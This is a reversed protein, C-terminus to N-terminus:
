ETPKDPETAEEVPAESTENSAETTADTAEAVEEAKAEVPEAAETATNEENSETAIEANASNDQKEVNGDEGDASPPTDVAKKSLSIKRSTENVDTVKVTVVQGVTLEDEPKDVHKSAIQSIHVLGDIGEELNVFAGFAAMRVVKGEVVSGIPYKESIKNWPNSGADKLTLSIKNKEPSVDIVTVTVKDGVSLVDSVKRVRKWAIESIHVLGDVGGLDIFAGFDTIRSVEGSIQQGVELTGFLEERRARQEQAALEKRGAVTRRKSRDFELINFKFEKGKFVSLDEVYRSSIQSSPVFVRIGYISAILGGNVLDMIRGPVVEKENYAQEILKYNTQADLRRKSALVNGDGDNVRMVQVEIVDGLKVLEVLNANPDDVFEGKSIIGDSKYGLNVTIENETV